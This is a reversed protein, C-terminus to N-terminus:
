SRGCVSKTLWNTPVALTTAPSNTRASWPTAVTRTIPPATSLAFSVGCSRLPAGTNTDTRGSYHPQFGRRAVAADGAHHLRDHRESRVDDVLHLGRAAGRELDALRARRRCRQPAGAVVDM